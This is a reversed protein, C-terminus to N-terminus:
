EKEKRFLHIKEIEKISIGLCFSIIHCIHLVVGGGGGGGYGKGLM